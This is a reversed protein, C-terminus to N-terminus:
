YNKEFLKILSRNNQSQEADPVVVEVFGLGVCKQRVVLIQMTEGRVELLAVHLAVAFVYRARSLSNIIGSTCYYM